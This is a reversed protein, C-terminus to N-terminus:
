DEGAGARRQRTERTRDAIQPSEARSPAYAHSERSSAAQRSGAEEQREQRSLDSAVPKRPSLRATQALFFLFVHVAVSRSARETGESKRIQGAQWSLPPTMHAKEKSQAFVSIRRLRVMDGM